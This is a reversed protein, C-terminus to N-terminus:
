ESEPIDESETLTPHKYEYLAIAVYLWYLVTGAIASIVIDTSTLANRQSILWLVGVIPIAVALLGLALKLLIFREIITDAREIANEVQENFWTCGAIVREHPKM